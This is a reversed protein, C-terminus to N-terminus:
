KISIGAKMFFQSYKRPKANISQSISVSDQKAKIITKSLMKNLEPLHLSLQNLKARIVNPKALQPFVPLSAKRINSLRMNHRTSSELDIQLDAKSKNTNFDTFSNFLNKFKQVTPVGETNM